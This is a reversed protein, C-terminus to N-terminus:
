YDCPFVVLTRKRVSYVFQTLERIRADAGHEISATWMVWRSREPDFNRRFALALAGYDDASFEHEKALALYERYADPPSTAALTCLRAVADSPEFEAGNWAALSFRSSPDNWDEPGEDDPSRWGRAFEIARAIRDLREAAASPHRERAAALLACARDHAGAGALRGITRIWVDLGIENPREDALAVLELAARDPLESALSDIAGLKARMWADSGHECTEVLEAFALVAAHADGRDLARQAAAFREDVSPACAAVVLLATAFRALRM